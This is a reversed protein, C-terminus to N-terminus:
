LSKYSFLAAILSYLLIVVGKGVCHMILIKTQHNMKLINTHTHLRTYTFRSKERKYVQGPFDNRCSFVLFFRPVYLPPAMSVETQLMLNSLSQIETAM